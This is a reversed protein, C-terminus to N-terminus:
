LSAMKSWLSDFESQFRAVLRVDNTVVFNEQNFRAAGRTWNYSGTLLQDQDFIAFKHHMHAETDDIRVEIGARSFEKIDSGLEDMKDNDTLIRIKVGRKHANLIPRSITNDTVTFVCIDLHKQASDVLRAIRAPCDDGPTFYAQVVPNGGAEASRSQLVKVVGELWDLIAAGKSDDLAKKAAVFAQNRYQALKHEDPQSEAILEKLLDKEKRSFRGDELTELLFEDFEHRDM